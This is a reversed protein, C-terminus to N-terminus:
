SLIYHKGGRKGGDFANMLNSIFKLKEPPKKLFFGM